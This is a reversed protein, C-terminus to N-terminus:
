IASLDEGNVASHSKNRRRKGASPRDGSDTSGIPPQGDGSGSLSGDKINFADSISRIANMVDLSSLADPISFSDSTVDLSKRISKSLSLPFM